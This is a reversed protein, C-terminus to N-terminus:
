IFLLAIMVGTSIVSVARTKIIIDKKEKATRIYADIDCLANECYEEINERACVCLSNCLTILVDKEWQFLKCQSQEVSSKWREPVPLDDSKNCFLGIFDLSDYKGTENLYLLIREFSNNSFLATNKIDTILLGVNYLADCHKKENNIILFATVVSATLIIIVLSITM